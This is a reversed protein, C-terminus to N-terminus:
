YSAIWCPALIKLLMVILSLVAGMWTVIHLVVVGMWPIDFRLGYM